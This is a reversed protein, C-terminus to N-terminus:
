QVLGMLTQLMQDAVSILKASADYSRQYTIVNTMEEDISVGSYSNKQDQLQQLVLQTSDALQNASVKDNGIGSVLESYSDSITSGNLLKQSSLDAIKLAINGNGSTGDSSVAINNNDALINDNIKLVGNKYSDFFNIGTEPSASNTYGTSHISNVSDVLTSMVSNLNDQYKGTYNSYSDTIAYLEGGKITAVNNADTTTISLTDNVSGIKFQVATNQDAAFVGGVSIIANNSSDYSVNINTLKSLEDIVQDRQDLLDNNEAGSVSSTSIQTNLSQVQKLLNNLDKVKSKADNLLNGKIEDLGQYVTQVQSALKQASQVVSTRLADSNPTVSLENWSNFFSNILSSIGLDSPEPFLAEVQSLVESRQNADSFKSNNNRIQNDTLQDRARSIQDITVGTGWVMGALSQPTRASLDVRQRSYNENSANAINHSTVDLAGQYAMLSSKAIDFIRGLGM